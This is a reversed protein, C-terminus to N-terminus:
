ICKMKIQNVQQIQENWQGGMKKNNSGHKACPKIKKIHMEKRKNIMSTRWCVPKIVQHIKKLGVWTM